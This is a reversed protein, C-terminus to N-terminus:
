PWLAQWQSFLQSDKVVCGHPNSPCLGTASTVRLWQANLREPAWHRQAVPDTIDYTYSLGTRGRVILGRYTDTGAPTSLPPLTYSAPLDNGPSDGPAALMVVRRVAYDKGIVTAHGGGQSHGAFILKSPNLVCATTCLPNIFYSGWNGPSGPDVTDRLHVLLRTLRPLIADGKVISTVASGPQVEGTILTSRTPLFCADDGGCLSGVSPENQYDLGIIRYGKSTASAYLTHDADSLYPGSLLNDPSGGTGPLFVILEPKTPANPRMVVHPDPYNGSGPLGTEAPTVLRCHVGTPGTCNSVAQEADVVPEQAPDSAGGCGVSLCLGLWWPM